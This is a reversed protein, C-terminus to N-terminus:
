ELMRKQGYYFNLMEDENDEDFDMDEVGAEHELEEDIDEESDGSDGENEEVEDQSLPISNNM